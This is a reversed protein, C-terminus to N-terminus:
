HLTDVLNPAPTRCCAGSVTKASRSLPTSLTAPTLQRSKKAPSSGSNSTHQQYVATPSHIPSLEQYCLGKDPFFSPFFGGEKTPTSCTVGAKHISQPITTSNYADRVSPDAPSSTEEPDTVDGLDTDRVSPNTPSSTEKLDIVDGPDTTNNGDAHDSVAPPQYYRKLHFGNVRDVIQM